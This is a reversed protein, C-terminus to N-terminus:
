VTVGQRGHGGIAGRNSVVRRDTETIQHAVTGVRTGHDVANAGELQCDTAAAELLPTV